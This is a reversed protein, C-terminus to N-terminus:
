GQLSGQPSTEKVEDIAKYYPMLGNLVAVLNLGNNLLLSTGIGFLGALAGAMLVTNPVLTIIFSRRVNKRLDESIQFLVDFKSLTGDMFVVDAVDTAIDAAGRLSISCDARSLALSDNIGDGVMAVKLGQRQLEAVHRAKDEPLVGAMYNPIGLRYALAQTAAENDGSILYIKEIGRKERLTQIMEYAEPRESAELEISGVIQGDVAVCIATKGSRYVEEMHSSLEAPIPVEERQMYRLSGIKVTAGNVRVEVGFGVRYSAQDVAPLGLDWEAAKRLIARAIPHSFRQEACAAYALIDAETHGPDYSNIRGVRPTEQTLTGTKDFIVADINNLSELIGGHKIIIGNRAALAISALMALPAAVRIGTGYDANIIAIMANPGVVMQGVAGIGLTPIVMRDAFRESMLQIRGKHEVSQHLIKLIKAANTHEGTRNVRIVLRGALAVTMEFVEDGAAKEVASYEGTLLHQDVIGEGDIVVGDAPIQEGARVVVLDGNVLASIETEVEQGDILRWTHRQQKGFVDALIKGSLQSTSELLANALDLLWVMVAAAFYRKYSFLLAIVIADLIDVKVKRSIFIAGLASLLIRSSTLATAPIAIVALGPYVLAAGALMLSISSLALQRRSRLAPSSSARSPDSIAESEAAQIMATLIRLLEDRDLYRTDYKVLIKATFISVSYGLVGELNLTKLELREAVARNKSLLPHYVRIRGPIDSLIRWQSRLGSLGNQSTVKDDGM